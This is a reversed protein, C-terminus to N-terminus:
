PLVILSGRIVGGSPCYDRCQFTFTGPLSTDFPLKRTTGERVVSFYAGLYPIDLDYDGDTATFDVSLSDGKNVTISSPVFGGRAARMDFFKIKTDLEVNASAPAENKPVTPTAGVPVEPTFVQVGNMVGETAGTTEEGGLGPPTSIGPLAGGGSFFGFVVVLVIFGGTLALITLQKRSM